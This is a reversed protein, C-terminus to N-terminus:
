IKIELTKADFSTTAPITFAPRAGFERNSKYSVKQGASDFCRIYSDNAGTPTRTWQVTASDGKFAIVLDNTIPLTNGEADTGESSGGLENVSLLFVSKKITHITLNFGNIYSKFKTDGILNQIKESFLNKYEGNLWKLIDSNLFDNSSYYNWLQNSHCDKRVMLTRGNGNLGSEYNHKAVYFETMVGKEPIKVLTGEAINGLKLSAVPVTHVNGKKLYLCHGM